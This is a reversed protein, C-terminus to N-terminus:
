GGLLDLAIPPAVPLLAGAVMIGVAGAAGAVFQGDPSVREQDLVLSERAGHALSLGALDHAVVGVREAGV